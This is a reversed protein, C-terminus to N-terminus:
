DHKVQKTWEIIEDRNINNLTKGSIFNINPYKEKLHNLSGEYTSGGSTVFVYVNKNTLYNEEIFTDIISPEKYWCVPFGIIIFSYEGQIKWKIKLQQVFVKM